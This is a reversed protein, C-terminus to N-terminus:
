GDPQNSQRRGINSTNMTATTGHKNTYTRKTPQDSSVNCTLERRVKGVFPHSVHCLKAIQNDSWPEGTQPDNAVDPNTLLTMVAKRKDAPTRRKGHDANAGVSYLIADRKTGSHIEAAIEEVGASRAAHTRHFGDALPPLVRHRRDEVHPPHQNFGSLAGRVAAPLPHETLFIRIPQRKVLVGRL